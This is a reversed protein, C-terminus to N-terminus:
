DAFRYQIALASFQRPQHHPGLRYQDPIWSDRCSLRGIYRGAKLTLERPRSEDALHMMIGGSPGAAITYPRRCQGRAAVMALPLQPDKHYAALGWRGVLYELTMGGTSVTATKQAPRPAPSRVPPTVKTQMNEQSPTQLAVDIGKQQAESLNLWTMGEPPAQTIYIVARDPLGIKNLYAGVLANAAGVETAQGSRVEYAAHFGIQANPGMFRQTGGLWAIACASACRSNSPVLTIYGKLRILEGIQIGALASGGDSNFAVVAKPFRSIVNRFEQIDSISLRGQVAIAGIEASGAVPKAAIEAAYSGNILAVAWAITLAAVATHFRSVSKAGKSSCRRRFFLGMLLLERYKRVAYM